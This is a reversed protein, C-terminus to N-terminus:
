GRNSGAVLTIEKTIFEVLERSRAQWSAAREGADARPRKHLRLRAVDPLNRVMFLRGQESLARDLAGVRGTFVSYVPVGLMAAERNMTGGGGVVVDAHWILNLGDVAETLVRFNSCDGLSRALTEAQSATRPVVVGVTNTEAAIRQLVAEMIDESLRTQYHANTAPPRIVVVTDGAPIDLHELISPDPSFAGLYVEEKFGPYKAVRRPDLGLTKLLNDPLLDPLLIRQSFRNFIATSVFEYDYMTVCPIALVQCALLLSRSGHSVAADIRRGRAWHVLSAVRAATGVVKMLLNKGPHRGVLDYDIPRRDLMERTYGHNRVTVLTAHGGDKLNHIIPTFFPVHPANDLDIWITSM